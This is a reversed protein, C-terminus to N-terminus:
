FFIILLKPPSLWGACSTACKLVSENMGRFFQLCLIMLRYRKKNDNTIPLSFIPLSDSHIRDGTIYRSRPLPQHIICSMSTASDNSLSDSSSIGEYDYLPSFDCATTMHYVWPSSVLPFVICNHVVSNHFKGGM